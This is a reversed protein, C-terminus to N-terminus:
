PTSAIQLDRAAVLRLDAPVKDGAQLVVIDGPVLDAAPVKRTEGARVVTAEAGM